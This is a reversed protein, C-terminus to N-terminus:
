DLIAIADIEILAESNTLGAVLVGTAAPFSSEFFERRVEATDKYGQFTTVYDTTKVVNDFTAGAMELIIKIKEYTEKAQLKIDGKSIIKGKDETKGIVGSIFLM